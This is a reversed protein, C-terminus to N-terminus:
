GRPVASSTTVRVGLSPNPFSAAPPADQLLMLFSLHFRPSCFPGADPGVEGTRQQPRATLCAQGAGMRRSGNSGLVERRLAGAKRGGLLRLLAARVHRERLVSPKKRYMNRGSAYKAIVLTRFPRSLCPPMTPAASCWPTTSLRSLPRQTGETVILSTPKCLPLAAKWLARRREM